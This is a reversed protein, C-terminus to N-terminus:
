REGRVEIYLECLQEALSERRTGYADDVEETIPVLVARAQYVTLLEVLGHPWEAYMDRPLLGICEKVFEVPVARVWALPEFM